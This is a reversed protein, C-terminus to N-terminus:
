LPQLSQTPFNRSSELMMSYGDEVPFIIEKAHLDGPRMQLNDVRGVTSHAGGLRTLKQREGSYWMAPFLKLYVRVVPIGENKDLRGEGTGPM